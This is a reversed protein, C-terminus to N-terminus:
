RIQINQRTEIRAVNKPITGAKIGEEVSKLVVTYEVKFCEDPLSIEDTVVTRSSERWGIQSNADKIKEGAPIWGALYEKLRKAKNEAVTQRRALEQKEGKIAEAEALMSKIYRAIDLAKQDREMQCDDLFKYWDDAIEGTEENVETFAADIAQELFSSIEYLKFGSKVICGRQTKGTAHMQRQGDSVRV